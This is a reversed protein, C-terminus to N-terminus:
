WARCSWYRAKTRPGPNDCNHRARFSRRAAPNSKRIKMDPDGFNVKKVNGTSPDKVYVKFKKVDGQMPKGLPVSRGQYEAEDLQEDENFWLEGYAEFFEDGDYTEELEEKVCNNVRVGGKMKTGDKKYGDWCKPDLRQKEEAVGQEVDVIEGREFSNVIKEATARPILKTKVWRGSEMTEQQWYEIQVLDTSGEAVGQEAVKVFGIGDCKGCKYKKADPRNMPHTEGDPTKYVYGKGHCRKCGTQTRKTVPGPMHDVEPYGGEAVGQEGHRISGDKMLKLNLNYQKNGHRIKNMRGAKFGKAFHQKYIGGDHKDWDNIVMARELTAGDALSVGKVVGEDYAMKALRPNFEEGDDGGNFGDPAFEDLKDQIKKYRQFNADKDADTKGFKGADMKKDIERKAHGPVVKRLTQPLGEAVKRSQKPGQRCKWKKDTSCYYEGHACGEILDQIKM